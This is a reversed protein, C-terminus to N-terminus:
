RFRLDSALLRAKHSLNAAAQIDGRDLAAEAQEILGRVTEVKEREEATKVERAAAVTLSNAERLEQLVQRELEQDDEQPRELSITVEAEVSDSEAPLSDLAVPITLSDPVTEPPLARVKRPRKPIQTITEATDAKAEVAAAISDPESGGRPTGIPIPRSFPWQVSCGTIALMAILVVVSRTV